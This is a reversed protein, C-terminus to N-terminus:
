LFKFLAALVDGIIYNYIGGLVAGVPMDAAAPADATFGIDIEPRIDMHMERDPDLPHLGYIRAVPTDTEVSGTWFQLVGPGLVHINTPQDMNILWNATVNFAIAPHLLRHKNFRDLEHLIWLPHQRFKNGRHYPQLGEVATQADPHWAGIRRQRANQFLGSGVGAHGQGDVDGVILFESGQAAKEPLPKTYAVALSYALTDLASRLNHLVEGILLSLPDRPPDEPHKTIDTALLGQGFPLGPPVDKRDAPTDPMAMGGALYHQTMGAPLSDGSPPPVPGTWRADLDIEHRVTAPHSECWASSESRLEELHKFARLLKLEHDFPV